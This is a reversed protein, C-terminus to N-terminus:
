KDVLRIGNDELVILRSKYLSGIAKKFTKKSMSLRQKIIDPKSKDNLDLFGDNKKLITLLKEAEPAVHQYGFQKLSIDLKGDERVTKVYAKEAQGAYLRKFVDNKFILGQYKQNVIVKIGLDTKDYALVEVEDGEKVDINERIFHKHFRNTGVLRNTKEDLYLYIYYYEGVRMDERQEKYPVLLDKPLGWDFFAGYGTISILELYAFQHLTILPKETTAIPRDESDNYVFVEIEDGMEMDEPFYRNPILIRGDEDEDNEDILYFGQPLRESATLTNYKGIEIM